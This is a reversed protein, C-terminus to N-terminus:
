QPFLYTNLCVVIIYIIESILTNLIGVLGFKIFQILKKM